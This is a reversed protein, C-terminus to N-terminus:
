PRARVARHISTGTALAAAATRTESDDCSTRRSFERRESASLLSFRPVSQEKTSVFVPSSNMAGCPRGGSNASTNEVFPSGVAGCVRRSAEWAAAKRVRTSPSVATRSYSSRACRPTFTTQEAVTPAASASTRQRRDAVYGSVSTSSSTCNGTQARRAGRPSCAASSESTMPAVLPPTTRAGASRLVPARTLPM